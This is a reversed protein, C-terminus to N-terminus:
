AVHPGRTHLVLSAGKSLVASLTVTLNIRTSLDQPRHSATQTEKPSAANRQVRLTYCIALRAQPRM